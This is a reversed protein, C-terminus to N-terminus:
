CVALVKNHPIFKRSDSWSNLLQDSLTQIADSASKSVSAQMDAMKLSAVRANRRVSAILKDRTSPQPAPIGHSDLFEKLDMSINSNLKFLNIPVKGSESWTEYLWNGPYSTTEGVKKAITEYNSRAKQLITDRKKPQPIPIDYKDCFAKLQSETPM